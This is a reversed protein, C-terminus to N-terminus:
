ELEGDFVLTFRWADRGTQIIDSQPALVVGSWQRSEWDLLGIKQGLSTNLFEVLSDVDAECINEIVLTQVEVTPWSPDAVIVDQGGRTKRLVASRSFVSTNGLAPNKLVLTTTPTNFPYTLTLTGTSLTPPTTNIAEYALDGGEGVFPRYDKEICKQGTITFTVHQKLCGQSVGRDYETASSDVAAVLAFENFVDFMQLATLVETFGFSNSANHAQLITNEFGITNSLSAEISRFVFVGGLNSEVFIANSVNVVFRPTWGLYQVIDETYDMGIAPSLGLSNTADVYIFNHEVEQLLHIDNEVAIFFPVAASSDLSLSNSLSLVIEIDRTLVATYVQTVRVDGDGIDLATVYSQTNRVAM